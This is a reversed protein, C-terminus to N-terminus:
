RKVLLQHLSDLVKGLGAPDLPKNSGDVPWSWCLQEVLDNAAPINKAFWRVKEDLGHGFVTLGYEVIDFYPNDGPRGNPM